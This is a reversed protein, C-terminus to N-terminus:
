QSSDYFTGTIMIVVGIFSIVLVLSDVKSLAVNLMFYSLVATLLPGLTVVLSVYVLPLYKIATFMCAMIVLDLVVRVGLNRYQERPITHYMYEGTRRNMIGLYILMSIISRLLLM